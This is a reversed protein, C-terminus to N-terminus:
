NILHFNMDDHDNDTEDDDGDDDDGNEENDLTVHDLLYKVMTQPLGLKPIRGFLHQNPNIKLLHARIAEMCIRQLSVRRPGRMTVSLRGRVRMGSVTQGAAHVLRYMRRSLPMSGGGTLAKLFKSMDDMTNILAGQRLLLKACNTKLSIVASTFAPSGDPRMTNVDAGKEILIRTCEAYGRNATVMLPTWDYVNASNM